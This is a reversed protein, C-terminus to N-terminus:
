SVAYTNKFETVTLMKSMTNIFLAFSQMEAKKKKKKKVKAKRSILILRDEGLLLFTRGIQIDDEFCLYM